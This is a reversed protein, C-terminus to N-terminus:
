HSRRETSRLSSNENTAFLLTLM